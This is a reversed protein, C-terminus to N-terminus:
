YWTLCHGVGSVCVACLRIVHYIDGLGAKTLVGALVV